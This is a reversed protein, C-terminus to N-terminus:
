EIHWSQRQRSAIVYKALPNGDLPMGVSGIHV